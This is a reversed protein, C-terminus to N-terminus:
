RMCWDVKNGIQQVTSKWCLQGHQIWSQQWNTGPNVSLVNGTYHLAVHPKEAVRASKAKRQSYSTINDIFLYIFLYIILWQADLLREAAASSRTAYTLEYPLVTILAGHHPLRVRCSRHESLRLVHQNSAWRQNFWGVSATVNQTM